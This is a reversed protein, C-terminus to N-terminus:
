VVQLKFPFKSTHVSYVKGHIDNVEINHEYLGGLNNISVHKVLRGELLVDFYGGLGPKAGRTEDRYLFGTNLYNGLIIAQHTHGTVQLLVNSYVIYDQQGNGPWHQVLITDPDNLRKDNSIHIGDSIKAKDVHNLCIAYPSKYLDKVDALDYGPLLRDRNGFIYYLPVADKTLLALIKRATEKSEDFYREKREAMFDRYQKASRSVGTRALFEQLKRREEATKHLSSLNTLDGAFVFADYSAGRRRVDELMTKVADVNGHVDSFCLLKM